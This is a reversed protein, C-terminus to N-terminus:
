RGYIQGPSRESQEPAIQWLRRDEPLISFCSTFRPNKLRIASAGALSTGLLVCSGGACISTVDWDSPSGPSRLILKDGDIPM